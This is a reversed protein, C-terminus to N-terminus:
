NTHFPVMNERWDANLLEFILMAPNSQNHLSPVSTNWSLATSCYDYHSNPHTVQKVQFIDEFSFSAAFQAVYTTRSIVLTFNHVRATSFENLQITFKILQFLKFKCSMLSLEGTNSRGKYVPLIESNAGFRLNHQNRPLHLVYRM